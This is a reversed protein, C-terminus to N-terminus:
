FLVLKGIVNYSAYLDGIVLNTQSKLPVENLKHCIYFVFM